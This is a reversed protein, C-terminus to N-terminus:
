PRKSTAPSRGSSKRAALCVERRNFALQRTAVSDFGWGRVRDVFEPVSQLVTWDSLKLTLVLGRVRVDRHTVIAEVDDLANAPAINSDAFLWKVTRFERRKVDAVRMRLHRFRPDAAIGEDINAPDIGLVRLGRELLAQAAGGPACGIEACQDGIRVPLRSWALAENIKYYARSIPEQRAEIRPVGGPWCSATSTAVHWGIWWEGPSVLVCDLIHEGSRAHQNVPRQSPAEPRAAALIQGVQDSLPTVGPEFGRDGPLATDRQWVHLHQFPLTGVLQWAQRAAEEARESQIKGLCFGSTRALISGLEFDNALRLGAPLKFTVFGPRSFALHFAPWSRALEGKLASEAGVQCVVFLFKADAVM